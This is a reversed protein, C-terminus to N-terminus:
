HKEAIAELNQHAEIAPFVSYRLHVTAVRGKLGTFGYM